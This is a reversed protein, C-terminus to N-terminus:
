DRQGYLSAEEVEKSFRGSEQAFDGGGLEAAGHIKQRKRYDLDLRKQFAMM